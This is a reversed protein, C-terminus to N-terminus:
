RFRVPAIYTRQAATMGIPPPPFSAQRILLLAAEDLPPHGSSKQVQAAELAGTEGIVFRLVVVGRARSAKARAKASKQDVRLLAKQIAVGFARVEGASAAVAPPPAPAAGDSGDSAEGGATTAPATAAEKPPEPEKRPPQEPQREVPPQDLVKPPEPPPTTEPPRQRPPEPLFALEDPPSPPTETVLPTEVAQVPEAPQPPPPEAAAPTTQPGNGEPVPAASQAPAASPTPPATHAALVDASVITVSISDFEAGGGGLRDAQFSLLAVLLAAHAGAAILFPIPRLMRQAITPRESAAWAIDPVRLEVASVDTVPADEARVARLDIVPSSVKQQVPGGQQRSRAAREQAYAALDILAATEHAPPADLQPLLTVGEAQDHPSGRKPMMGDTTLSMAQGYVNCCLLSSTVYWRAAPCPARIDFKALRIPSTAAADAAIVPKPADVADACVVSGPTTTVVGLGTAGRRAGGAATIVVGAGAGDAGAGTTVWAGGAGGGTTAAGVAGNGPVRTTTSSANTGTVTTVSRSVTALAPLVMVSTSAVLGPMAAEVNAGPDLRGIM